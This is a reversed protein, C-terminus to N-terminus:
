AFNRVTTASPMVGGAYPRLHRGHRTDDDLLGVDGRQFDVGDDIGGVLRQQAAAPDVAGDVTRRSRLQQGFAARDAAARGPLRPDGLSVPQRRAIHDMRDPRAVAVPPTALRVQQGAAVAVAERQRPRM